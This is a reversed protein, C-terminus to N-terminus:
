NENGSKISSYDDYDDSCYDEDDEESIYYNAKFSYQDNEDEQDKENSDEHSIISVCEFIFDDLEDNFDKLLQLFDRRKSNIKIWKKYRQIIFEKTFCKPFTATSLLFNELSKIDHEEDVILSAFVDDDSIYKTDVYTDSSIKLRKIVEGRSAM